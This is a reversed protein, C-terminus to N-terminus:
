VKKTWNDLVNNILNRLVYRDQTKEDTVDLAIIEKTKVDVEIYIKLYGKEEQETNEIKWKDM